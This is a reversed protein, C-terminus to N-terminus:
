YAESRRERIAVTARKRAAREADDSVELGTRLCTVELTVTGDDESASNDLGVWWTRKSGFSDSFFVKSNSSVSHFRAAVVQYRQPCSVRLPHVGGPGIEMSAGRHTFGKAETLQARLVGNERKESLWAVVVAALVVGLFVLARQVTPRGGSDTLLVRHESM